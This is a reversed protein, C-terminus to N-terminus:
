LDIRCFCRSELLVGRRSTGCIGLSFVRTKSSGQYRFRVLAAKQRPTMEDEDALRRVNAIVAKSIDEPRYVQIELCGAEFEEPLIPDSIHLEEFPVKDNYSGYTVTEASERV